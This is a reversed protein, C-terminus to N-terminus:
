VLGQAMMLDVRQNIREYLRARDMSLWYYFLQFEARLTPAQEFSSFPRGTMAQVELARIVRKVNNPHIRAAALPDQETLIAHLAQVGQENLVAEYRARIADDRDRFAIIPSM